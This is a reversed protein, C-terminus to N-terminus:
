LEELRLLQEDILANLRDLSTQFALQSRHLDPSLVPRGRYTTGAIRAVDAVGLLLFELRELSGALGPDGNARERLHELNPVLSFSDLEPGEQVARKLAGRIFAPGFVRGDIEISKGASDVADALGIAGARLVRLENQLEIGPHGEPLPDLARVLAQERQHDAISGSRCADLIWHLQVGRRDAVAELRDMEKVTLDQPGATVIRDVDGHSAMFVVMAGGVPTQLLGRVIHNELEPLKPNSLRVLQSDAYGLARLGRVFRRSDRLTGELPKDHVFRSVGVSLVRQQGLPLAELASLDGTGTPIQDRIDFERAARLASALEGSQELARLLRRTFVGERPGYKTEFADNYRDAASTVSVTPDLDTRLGLVLLSFDGGGSDSEPTHLGFVRGTASQASVVVVAGVPPARSVVSELLLLVEGPNLGWRAFTQELPQRLTSATIELRDGGLSVVVTLVDSEMRDALEKREEEGLSLLKATQSAEMRGRTFHSLTGGVRLADRALGSLLELTELNLPQADRHSLVRALESTLEPRDITRELLALIRDRLEPTAHELVHTSALLSSGLGPEFRGANALRLLAEAHSSRTRALGKVFELARERSGADLQPVLDLLTRRAAAPFAGTAVVLETADFGYDSRRLALLQIPDLPAHSEIASLQDALRIAEAAERGGEYILERAFLASAPDLVDRLDELEDHEDTVTELAGELLASVVHASHESQLRERLVELGDPETLVLAVEYPRSAAARAGLARWAALAEPTEIGDFTVTKASGLTAAEIFLDCVARLLREFWHEDSSGDGLQGLTITAANEGLAKALREQAVFARGESMGVADNKAIADLRLAEDLAPLPIRQDVLGSISAGVALVGARELYTQLVLEPARLDSFRDPYLEVVSLLTDGPAVLHVGDTSEPAIASGEGDLRLADRALRIRNSGLKEDM